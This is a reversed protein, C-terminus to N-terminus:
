KPATEASEVSADAQTIRQRGQDIVSQAVAVNQEAEAVAAKRADLTAEAAQRAAVATDYTQRPIEDKDVLLKYRREDAAAKTLDAEAERVQARASEIRSLAANRQREAGLLFATADARGSAASKIQSATTTSTIPIDIRSTELAAEADALDAEAKALAVEFDKPDIRALVDGAKVYQEDEALVAVINGSIRASISNIHGDVQADDTSEYTNLYRWVFFGAVALIAVVAVVVVLRKWRGRRRAPRIEQATEAM